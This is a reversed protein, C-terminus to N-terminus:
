HSIFTFSPVHELHGAAPPKSPHQSLIFISVAALAVLAALFLVYVKKNFAKDEALAKAKLTGPPFAQGCHPCSVANVFSLRRCCTSKTIDM